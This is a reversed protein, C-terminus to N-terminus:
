GGVVSRNGRRAAMIVTLIKGSSLSLENDPYNM